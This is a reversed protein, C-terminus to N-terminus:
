IQSSKQQYSNNFIVDQSLSYIDFDTLSISINYSLLCKSHTWLPAHMIIM